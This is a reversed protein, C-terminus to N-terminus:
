VDDSHIPRTGTVRQVLQALTPDSELQRRLENRVYEFQEAPLSQELHATAVETRYDLYQEVSIEGRELRALAESPESGAAV